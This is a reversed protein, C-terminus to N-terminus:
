ACGNDDADLREEAIRILESLPMELAEAIKIQTELNPLKAGTEISALHSRGIGALGSFVEQTMGREKRLARIVKGFGRWDTSMGLDGRPINYRWKKGTKDVNTYVNAIM